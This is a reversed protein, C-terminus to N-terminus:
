VLRPTLWVSWYVAVTVPSDLVVTVQSTLPTLPPFEVMPVIM